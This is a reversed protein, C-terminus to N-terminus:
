KSKHKYQKSLPVQRQFHMYTYENSKTKLTQNHVTELKLNKDSKSSQKNETTKWKQNQM